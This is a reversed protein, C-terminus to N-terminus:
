RNSKRRPTVTATNESGFVLLVLVLQGDPSIRSLPLGQKLAFHALARFRFCVGRSVLSCALNILARAIVRASM